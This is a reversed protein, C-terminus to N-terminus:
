RVGVSVSDRSLSTRTTSHVTDNQSSVHQQVADWAKTVASDNGYAPITMVMEQYMREGVKSLLVGDAFHSLM